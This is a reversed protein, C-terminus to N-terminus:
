SKGERLTVTQGADTPRGALSPGSQEAGVVIADFQRKM